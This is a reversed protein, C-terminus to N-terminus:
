DGAESAFDSSLGSLAMKRQLLENVEDESLQDLRELMQAMKETNDQEERQATEIIEALRNITPTEFIRRLAIEVQFMDRIRSMVQTALLSHGGLEFFSDHVGIRQVGLVESWITSLTQEVETRQAVYENGVGARTQEPAPLAKYNIKGNPTLPLENLLIFFSPVMYAPLKEELYARLATAEVAEDEAVLYAVLRKEEHEKGAAMVVCERLAPHQGLVAEIEGLEIRYGRVKVQQDIRGLYETTGDAMYRALDGTHYLRAGPAASFPHPVFKEATLEPRNLYGRALGDGGLYLEGAVGVPSPQQGKDLIYIETNSVPRGIPIMLGEADERTASHWTAFVTSETPGYVNLIRGGYGQKLVERVARPELASGGILIERVDHFDTGMEHALQNFLATAMFLVNVGEQKVRQGLANANLMVEKSMGILSAGNLLASWIEFTAADFSATSGQSVIDDESVQIYNTQCVLRNIDRHTICVGKPLGTSGSTYIVYAVQEPWCKVRRQEASERAILDWDTDMYLVRVGDSTLEDKLSEETLMVKIDADKLMFALRERPYDPDLPVYIAGAKLIGLLAVIMRESREMHIAICDEREVGLRQLHNALQNARANLEAYTLREEYSVAVAQPRREVNEEFLEHVCKERPYDTATQNWQVLIQEREGEGMLGLEGIRERGGGRGVERLIEELHRVMRGMRAESYMEAAYQVAGRLGGGMEVVTMLVDFKAVEGDSAEERMAVGSMEMREEPANQMVMMTQFLPTRGMEREPELEEVLKEFPVDQHGYAGLCVERVRELLEGFTPNGSLDTRMVLTNVFFGILGETEARNRNAIPTGVCIDEQGSYRSLLVQWAALLLMFMTVGHERSVERLRATLEARVEFSVSEGRWSEKASRPHDAPLELVPLEGGLQERWYGMQRELVEGSLWGRQWVAFDAYQVALEPLPSAEGRSYSEYLASVERILVSMSWGDSIIHHMTLLVVHEDEALHLLSVRLLPGVSLDFPTRAEANIRRRVESEREQAPLHALSHLPLLLPQAPSILQRPLGDLVPFSTRLVEHRRVIESITQELAEVKLAGVLRVALPMLYMASGPMLQELFWLREQAFSLPWSETGGDVAEGWADEAEAPQSPPLARRPLLPPMMEASEGTRLRHEIELALGAITPSEFLTRLPLEVQCLQRLRSILRTALLSHGGLSFFNDHIGILDTSLLDSWVSLLLQELPSRPPSLTVAASADAASLSSPSPLAKRDLKGNPTLPLEDLIVFSSPIMYEPLREKLYLHLESSSLSNINVVPMPRGTESQQMKNSLQADRQYRTAFFNYVGSSEALEDQAVDFGHSELLSVVDAVRQDLDHVEIVIQKIKKWDQESIGRLVDVESKEVDIKLLDIQEIDNERLIRSITTLQCNFNRSEFRGDTLEDAYAALQAREAEGGELHQNLMYSKFLQKEETLDPYFGSMVSAEPYFTFTATKESDALGCEFLRVDLGYREVNLRLKEFAVPNPEFAYNKLNRFRQQAFLTFLGINAGVDFVCDGDRLIIGHKLYIRDVFLQRYLHEVENKNLYFVTLDNPLKHLQHESPKSGSKQKPALYAVLRKEGPQDELAVVAVEAIGPHQSLCAQIEGLEIRYGRMKVQQDVRGMFEISDDELYRALDGTRYLRAGPAASFPHPIFKEATQAPQGLYGRVVGEGGIYLEGAVGVPVPELAADLLYVQVNGLPRGIPVTAAVRTVSKEVKFTLAGVTAETPGYHNLVRCEPAYKKVNSMLEWSSAEGGVILQRGPLVQEPHACSMLAALHSPVIKLCAIEHATFYEALADADTTREQSIVHLTGGSCLSSYVVTHGLDAAFTSVTAFGAGDELELKGLIAHVYNMLQRHEVAVGKPIGTSGSTYIVYALNEARLLGSPNHEPEGGIVQWDSDVCVSQTEDEPLLGKLNTQTVFLKLGAGKLMAHLRERPSAVDLPVYAAGAKLIGLLGVVVDASREMLLGVPMEPGVGLKKLHHALQNARRNLEAYSLREDEYVLAIRDPAREVQREFLQHVCLGHPYEARTDNCRVLLREREDESLIRLRAIAEDDDVNKLLARFNADLRQISEASFLEADYLWELRLADGTKRCSLKVKFHETCVYQECISLKLNAAASYSAPQEAYDFGYPLSELGPLIESTGDSDSWSFYDQCDHAEALAENVQELVDRLRFSEVLQASVPIHKTLLGLLGELEEYEHCDFGTNVVVRPQGTLRWLLIQWCALLVANLSVEHEEACAELMVTTEQDLTSAFTEPSFPVNVAPRNEFPLPATEESLLEQKLLYAAAAQAEEDEVLENQWSSYQAYQVPEDSVMEDELVARYCRSIEEVLNRITGADACLAPWSILLLHEAASWRLLTVRPSTGGAADLPQSRHQRFRESLYLKQQQPSLGSADIEQWALPSEDAIVQIPLKTGPRRHFDTRLIQHRNVIGQLTEKLAAVKVDGELLIACAARYGSGKQQLLWVRKQQPSLRFGKIEKQM